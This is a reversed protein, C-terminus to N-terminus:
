TGLPRSDHGLTQGLTQELTQGLDLRTLTEPTPVGEPSWGMLRYFEDRMPGVDVTAGTGPGERLPEHGFVAPLDDDQAGAGCRVTFLRELVVIREGAALLEDAALDLGAIERVLEAENELEYENLLTLAPIKCLGLSDLAASVIMSRRVMAAKGTPSLPDGAREDGYLRRATEPAIDFEQRAYVSTYDGGRSSLAYGLAAGFAGRPDYAPLELGKVHYAYREAGRGIAAAARRVGGALLGGFGQGSAMQELLEDLADAAGWRLALGGTDAADIVGHECLDIAFAAVAGASVSDLGLRDCRNHLAVVAQPDDFGVKAGWAVLPEFDPREGVLDGYRGGSLRLEAKCHVPCGPCGETRTVWRQLSTGDTAAAGAFRPAAFNRTALIGEDNCWVVSSSTGYRRYEEFAPAAIIRRLYRKVAPSEGHSANASGDTQRLAARQGPERQGPERRSSDRPSAGTVVIAKLLKAGMVAGMGTRGAAHGKDTVVCAIRALHEGAPGILLLAAKAHAARLADAATRTDAGWLETADRLGVDGNEVLLYAPRQARGRLVIGFVGNRRLARGVEGGVNSSGLLGTLPSRAGVHVRSSTPARTGTLLGTFVLLPNAPSLPDVDSGTEDLLLRAVFGRGGLVARLGDDDPRRRTVAGTTLDVDLIDGPPAM